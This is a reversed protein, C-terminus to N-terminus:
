EVLLIHTASLMLKFVGPFIDTAAACHQEEAHSLVTALALSFGASAGFPELSSPPDGGLLVVM